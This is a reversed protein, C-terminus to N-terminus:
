VNSEVIGDAYYIGEGPSLSERSIGPSRHRTMTRSATPFQFRGSRDDRSVYDPSLRDVATPSLASHRSCPHHHHHHHHHHLNGRREKSAATTRDTPVSGFDTNALGAPVDADSSQADVPPPPAQFLHRLRGDIIFRQFAAILLHIVVLLSVAALMSCWILSLRQRAARVRDLPANIDM